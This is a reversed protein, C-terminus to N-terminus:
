KSNRVQWITNLISVSASQAIYVLADSDNSLYDTKYIKDSTIINFTHQYSGTNEEGNLLKSSILVTVDIKLGLMSKQILSDIRTEESVLGSNSLEGEDILKDIEIGEKLLIGPYNSLEAILLTGLGKELLGKNAASIRVTATDPETLIDTNQLSISGSAPSKATENISIFEEEYKENRGFYRQKFTKSTYNVKTIKSLNTKFDYKSGSSLPINELNVEITKDETSYMSKIDGSFLTYISKLDVWKISKQDPALEGKISIVQKYSFFPDSYSFGSFLNGDFAIQKFDANLSIYKETEPLSNDTVTEKNVSIDTVKLKVPVSINVTARKYISTQALSYFPTACFNILFFLLIIHKQNIM